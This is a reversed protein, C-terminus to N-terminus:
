IGWREKFIGRVGWYFSFAGAIQVFLGFLLLIEHGSKVKMTWFLWTCVVGILIKCVNGLFRGFLILLALGGFLLPLGGLSASM